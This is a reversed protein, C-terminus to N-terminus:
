AGAVLGAHIGKLLLAGATAAVGDLVRYSIILVKVVDQGTSLLKGFQAVAGREGIVLFLRESARESLHEFLM